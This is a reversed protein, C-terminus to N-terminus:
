KEHFRMYTEMSLGLEHCFQQARRHTQELDNLILKREEGAPMVSRGDIDYVKRRLMICQTLQEDFDYFIKVVDAGFFFRIDNQIEYHIDIVSQYPDPGMQQSLLSGIKKMKTWLSMRSPYLQLLYQLRQVKYQWTTVALGVGGIILVSVIQLIVGIVDTMAATCDNM